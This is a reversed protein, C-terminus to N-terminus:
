SRTPASAHRGGQRGHVHPQLARPVEHGAFLGVAPRGGHHLRPGNEARPVVPLRVRERFRSHQSLGRVAQRRALRGLLPRRRLRALRDRLGVAPALARVEGGLTDRFLKYYDGESMKDATWQKGGRFFMIENNGCWVRSRRITGCAPSTTAPRRRCSERPLGRRLGPLDICGFKFDLWICIGM